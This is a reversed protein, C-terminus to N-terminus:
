NKKVKLWLKTTMIGRWIYSWIIMDKATGNYWVDLHNTVM